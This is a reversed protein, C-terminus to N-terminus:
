TFRELQNDIYQILALMEDIYRYHSSKAFDLFICIQVRIYDYSIGNLTWDCIGDIYRLYRAQTEKIMSKHYVKTKLIDKLIYHEDNESSNMDLIDLTLIDIELSNLSNTLENM